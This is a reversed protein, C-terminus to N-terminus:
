TRYEIIFYSSNGPYLTFLAKRLSYGYQKLLPRGGCEIVKKSSIKGWDQINKIGFLHSLNELFKRQNELNQWYGPSTNFWDQEWEIEKTNLKREKFVQIIQAFRKKYLFVM